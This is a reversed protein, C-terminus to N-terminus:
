GRKIEERLLRLDDRTAMKEQMAAIKTLLDMEVKHDNATLLDFRGDGRSLRQGVHELESTLRNMPGDLRSVELRTEAKVLARMAEDRERNGEKILKQQDSLKKMLVGMALQVVFIVAQLVDRFEM